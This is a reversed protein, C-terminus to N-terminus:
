GPIAVNLADRMRKVESVLAKNEAELLRIREELLAIKKRLRQATCVANQRRKDKRHIRSGLLSTNNIALQYDTRARKVEEELHRTKEVEVDLKKILEKVWAVVVLWAEREQPTAKTLLPKTAELKEFPFDNM